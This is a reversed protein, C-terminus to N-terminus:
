WLYTVHLNLSRDAKDEQTTQATSAAAADGEADDSRTKEPLQSVVDEAVLSALCSGDPVGRARDLAEALRFSVSVDDELRLQAAGPGRSGVVAGRERPRLPLARPVLRQSRSPRPPEGVVCGREGGDEAYRREDERALENGEGVRPRMEDHASEYALELGHLASRGQEAANADKYRHSPPM